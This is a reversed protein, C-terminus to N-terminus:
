TLLAFKSGGLRPRLWNSTTTPTRYSYTQAHEDGFLERSFNRGHLAPTSDSPSPATTTEIRM